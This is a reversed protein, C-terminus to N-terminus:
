LLFIAKEKNNLDRERLRDHHKKEKSNLTANGRARLYERPLYLGEDGHPEGTEGLEARPTAELQGQVQM